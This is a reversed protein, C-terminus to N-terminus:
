KLTNEIIQAISGVPEIFECVDLKLLANSARDIQSRESILQAILSNLTQDLPEGPTFGSRRKEIWTATETGDPAIAPV